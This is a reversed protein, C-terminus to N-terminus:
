KFNFLHMLDGIAPSNVPIYPNKQTKPNPLNDRSRGTIPTLGWNAEIFKDISVHDNYTLYSRRDLIKVRCDLSYADWRWLFRAASRLWLGM